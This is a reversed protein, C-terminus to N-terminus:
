APDPDLDQKLIPDPVTIDEPEPDASAAGATGTGAGAGCCQKPVDLPSRFADACIKPIM